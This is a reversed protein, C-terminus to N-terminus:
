LRRLYPARSQARIGLRLEQETLATKFLTRRVWVPRHLPRLVRFLELVTWDGLSKSWLPCNVRDETRRPLSQKLAPGARLHPLMPRHARRRM